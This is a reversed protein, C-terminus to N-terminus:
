FSCNRCIDMYTEIARTPRNDLAKGMARFALCNAQGWLRMVM